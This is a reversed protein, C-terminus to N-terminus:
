LVPVYIYGMPDNLGYTQGANVIYTASWHENHFYLGDYAFHNYSLNMYTDTLIIGDKPPIFTGHM